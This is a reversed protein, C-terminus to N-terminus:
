GHSHGANSIEWYPDRYDKTVELYLSKLPIENSFFIINKSNFMANLNNCEILKDSYNSKLNTESGSSGLDPIIKELDPDPKFNGPGVPDRLRMRIWMVAQLPLNYM